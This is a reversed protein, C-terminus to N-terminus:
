FDVESKASNPILEIDGDPLKKITLYDNEILFDFTDSIIQEQKSLGSWRGLMFSVFFIGGGILATLLLPDFYITM